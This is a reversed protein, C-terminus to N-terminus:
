PLCCYRESVWAANSYIPDKIDKIRQEKIVEKIEMIGQPLSFKPAWGEGYIKASSARYNRQDEFMMDQYVVEVNPIMEQIREAIERIQMNEDHLNFLGSIQNDIGFLIAEGVDKVHLLPRWQEGGFVTLPQGTVARTTLINVVLDLRIRSHIDSIGYLTGLRYVLSDPRTLLYKEANLKTSAYVSLPNADGDEDLIGDNKGYVSCTSLFVIKGDYNETLWWVADENISQTLFPDVGCAGDGVLAALWIVIDYNPLIKGLKERDRIDGRIFPVDKMYRSEYVLSDYVAIDKNNKLLIDVLYGGIYGAGGVVLIREAM